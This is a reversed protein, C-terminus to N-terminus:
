RGDRALNSSSSAVVRPRRSHGIELDAVTFTTSAVRKQGGFYLFIEM